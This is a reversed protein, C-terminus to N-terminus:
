PSAPEGRIAPGYRDRESTAPDHGVLALAVAAGGAADEMRAKQPPAGVAMGARPREQGNVGNTGLIGPAFVRSITVVVPRNAERAAVLAVPQGPLVMEVIEDDLNLVVRAPANGPAAAGHEQM